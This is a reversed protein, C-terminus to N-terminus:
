PQALNILAYYSLLADTNSFGPLNTYSISLFYWFPKQEVWIPLQNYALLDISFILSFVLCTKTRSLYAALQQSYTHFTLKTLISQLQKLAFSFPEAAQVICVLSAWYYLHRFQYNKDLNIIRNMRNANIQAIYCAKLTKRWERRHPYICWWSLLSNFCGPM